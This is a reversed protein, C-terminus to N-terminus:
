TANRGLSSPVPARQRVALHSGGEHQRQQTHQQEGEAKGPHEAHVQAKWSPLPQDASIWYHLSGQMM